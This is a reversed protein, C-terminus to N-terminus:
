FMRLLLFQVIYLTTIFQLAAAATDLKKGADVSPGRFALLFPFLIPLFYRGQVGDIVTKGMETWTIAMGAMILIASLFALLGSWLRFREPLTDEYSRHLTNLVLSVLLLYVLIASYNVDLWGLWYGIMTELYWAANVWFTHQLLSVMSLPHNIFYEKSYRQAEYWSLDIYPEEVLDAPHIFQKFVIYCVALVIPVAVIIRLRKKNLIGKRWLYTGIPLLALVSYVYNRLPLLLLCCVALAIPVAYTKLKNEKPDPEEKKEGYFCKVTLAVLLIACVIRFADRSTSAALQMPMPLLAISYLLSKGVPLLRIAIYIAVIYFLLNFFRGLLYMTITNTHFLRGLTIGLAPFLYQYKQTDFVRPRRTYALTASPEMDDTVVVLSGDELPKSLEQLYSDFDDITYGAIDFDFEADDKRMLIGEEPSKIGMMINSLNYATRMHQPEDAITNLPFIMVLVTGFVLAQVLFLKEFSFKNEVAIYFFVCIGYLMLFSLTLGMSAYQYAGARTLCHLLTLGTRALALLITFVLMKHSSLTDIISNGEKIYRFILIAQATLFLIGALIVSPFSHGMVAMVALSLAYFLVNVAAAMLTKNKLLDKATDAM